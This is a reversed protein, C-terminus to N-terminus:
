TRDISEVIMGYIGTGITLANGAAVTATAYQVNLTGEFLTFHRNSMGGGLGGLRMAIAGSAMDACTLAYWKGADLNIVLEATEVVAGPVAGPSAVDNDGGVQSTIVGSTESLEHVRFRYNRSALTNLRAGLKKITCNSTCYVLVGKLPATAGSVGTSYRPPCFDLKANFGGGGSPPEIWEANYDAADIKSLIQGATGGAPVGNAAEDPSPAYLKGTETDIAVESAETTKAKAKIGGLEIETAQPLDYSGAVEALEFIGATENYTIVFGNKGTFNEINFEKGSLTGSITVKGDDDPASLSINDGELLGMVAHITKINGSTLIQINKGSALQQSYDAPNSVNTGSVREIVVPKQENEMMRIQNDRKRKMEKSLEHAM